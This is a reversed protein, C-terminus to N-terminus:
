RDSSAPPDRRPPALRLVIAGAIMCTVSGALVGIKTAAELGPREAFALLGIFLSMTFGIGCLLALGYIQWWGAHAPRTALGLRVAAFVAGFVGIQKGAFLGLAVGLTVPDALMGVKLGVLSVGANAFGFVPLVVYAAWPHIAHELGRLPSAQGSRLPITLALLVGAITAHIGSALVFVWLVSGLVLYPALRVVGAGNLAALAALVIGAGALMPLSLDTTYFAAIILM